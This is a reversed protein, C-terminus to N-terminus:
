LSRKEEHVHFCEIMDGVRIKDYNDFSMGCEQGAVVSAADDKFRKL